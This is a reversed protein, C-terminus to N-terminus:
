QPAVFHGGRTACDAKAQKATFKDDYYWLNACHTADAILCSGLANKAACGDKTSFSGAGCAAQVASQTYGDGYNVCTGDLKQADCTMEIACHGGLVFNGDHSTCSTRATPEDFFTTSLWGASCRNGLEDICVGVKDVPECAADDYTGTCDSKVGTVLKSYSECQVASDCSQTFVCGILGYSPATSGGSGVSGACGAAGSTTGGSSSGGSSTGGSSAGASGGSAPSGAAGSAGASAAAGGSGSAAASGASGSAGASGGTVSADPVTGGTGDTCGRLGGSGGPSRGRPPGDPNNCGLALSFFAILVAAATNKSQVM